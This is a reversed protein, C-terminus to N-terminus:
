CQRKMYELWGAYSEQDRTMWAIEQEREVCQRNHTMLIYAYQAGIHMATKLYQPENLWEYDKEIFGRLQETHKATAARMSLLWAELDLMDLNALHESYQLTIDRCYDEPTSAKLSRLAIVAGRYYHNMTSELDDFVAPTHAKVAALAALNNFINPYQQAYYDRLTNFMSDSEYNRRSMWHCEHGVDYINSLIIPLAKEESPNAQWWDYYGETYKM